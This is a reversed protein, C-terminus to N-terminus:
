TFLLREGPNMIITPDMLSTRDIQYCGIIPQVLRTADLYCDKPSLKGFAFGIIHV